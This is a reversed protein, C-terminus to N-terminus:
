LKRISVVIESSFMDKIIPIKSFWKTFRAIKSGFGKNEFRNIAFLNSSLIKKRFVHPWLKNLDNAFSFNREKLRGDHDYDWFKHQYNPDNYVCTALRCFCKESIFLHLWPIPVLTRMHSGWPNPWFANWCIHVHGGPKLIRWWEHMISDIDLIHEMVDFCLVYDISGDDIPIKNPLGKKVEIKTILNAGRISQRAVDISDDSLDIAYVKNAYCEKILIISLQGHGCGFDVLDKGCYDDIQFNSFVEKELESYRWNFHLAENNTHGVSQEIRAVKSLMLCFESLLNLM